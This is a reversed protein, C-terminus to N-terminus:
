GAAQSGHHERVRNSKQPRAQFSHRPPCLIKLRAQRSQQDAYDAIEAERLDHSGAVFVNVLGHVILERPLDEADQRAQLDHGSSQRENTSGRASHKSRSQKNAGHQSARNASDLTVQEGM